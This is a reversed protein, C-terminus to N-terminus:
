RNKWYWFGGILAAAILLNKKTFAAGVISPGAVTEASQAMQSTAQAQALKQQAQVQAPIQFPLVPRTSTISSPVRSSPTPAANGPAYSLNFGSAAVEVGRGTFSFSPIM